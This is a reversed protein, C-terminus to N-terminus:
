TIVHLEGCQKFPYKEVTYIRKRERLHNGSSFGYRILKKTIKDPKWTEAYLDFVSCHNTIGDLRLGRGIGQLIRTENKGVDILVMQEIENISIGTGVTGYTAALQYNTYKEFELYYQERMNSKTAQDIFDIGLIKSLKKAQEPHCLILTNKKPLKDIFDAIVDLRHRNTTLYKYETSWEDDPLNIEQKVSYM